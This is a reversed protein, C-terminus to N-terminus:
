ASTALLTEVDRQLDGSAIYPHLNDGPCSTSAHDRHGSITSPLIEYTDAAWALVQVLADLQAPTPNDNNFNGEVVILLHSTPDYNTGTAGAFRPDRAAYVTGDVGIIYHYAVDGWGRDMHFAQWSRYRAPGTSTSQDGAHHITLRRITHPQMVSTDAPVAGWANRAVVDLTIKPPPVSVPALDLARTLFVAIQGRTVKARPCYKDNAPPNCGLTIGAAAIREIDAEFVSNDDDAFRNRGTNDTLGLGRALFAAMQGRTVSEDPCFESNAPPNCGMTIGAVALANIAAEHVSTHDDTFRDHEAASLRLARFLMTAMQARTLPSSPCYRDNEPPNCGNTIGAAFIAEIFPEQPSSDDDIFTGGPPLGTAIAPPEAGVLVPICLVAVLVAVFASFLVRRWVSCVTSTHDRRRGM